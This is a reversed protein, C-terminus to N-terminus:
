GNILRLTLTIRGLPLLVVMLVLIWGLWFSCAMWNAKKLWYYASGNGPFSIATEALLLMEPM